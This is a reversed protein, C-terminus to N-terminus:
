RRDVVADGRATAIRGARSAVVACDHRQLRHDLLASRSVVARQRTRSNSAMFVGIREQLLGARNKPMANDSAALRNAQPVRIIGATAAAASLGTTAWCGNVMCGDIGGLMMSISSSEPDIAHLMM